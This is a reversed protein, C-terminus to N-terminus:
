WNINLIMYFGLTAPLIGVLVILLLAGWKRSGTHLYSQWLQRNWIVLPTLLLSLFGCTYLVLGIGIATWEGGEGGFGIGSFILFLSLLSAVLFLRLLTLLLFELNYWRRWM